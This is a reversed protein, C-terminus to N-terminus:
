KRKIQKFRQNELDYSNLLQRIYKENILELKAEKVFNKWTLERLASSFAPVFSVLKDLFGRPKFDKIPLMMESINDKELIVREHSRLLHLIFRYLFLWSDKFFEDFVVDIQEIPIISSFITFIWEIAFM